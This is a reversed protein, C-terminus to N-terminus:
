KNMKTKCAQGDSLSLTILVGHHKSAGRNLTKMNMMLLLLMGVMMKMKAMQSLCMLRVSLLVGHHRSRNLTKMSGNM